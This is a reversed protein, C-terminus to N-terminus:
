DEFGCFRRGYKNIAISKSVSRIEHTCQKIGPCDKKLHYVEASPSICIFVTVEDSSKFGFFIFLLLTILLSKM